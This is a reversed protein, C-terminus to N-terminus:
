DQPKFPAVRGPAIPLYIRFREEGKQAYVPFGRYNAIEILGAHLRGSPGAMVWKEGMFRVSVSDYSFPKGARRPPPPETAESAMAPAEPVAVAPSGRGATAVAGPETTFPSIAEIPFSTPMRPTQGPFSPARSGSTGALDGTRRREYPQMRGRGIPVFLISYPELTTDAYVGVGNFYGTRVMVNGNFFVVAGAPYYFEGSLVIPEGRRYWLDNEATVIPPDTPRSNVQAMVPATLLFMLAAAMWRM